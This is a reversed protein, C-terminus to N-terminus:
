SDNGDKKTGEDKSAGEILSLAIQLPPRAEAAHNRQEASEYPNPRGKPAAAQGSPGNCVQAEGPPSPGKWQNKRTVGGNPPAGTRQQAGATRAM